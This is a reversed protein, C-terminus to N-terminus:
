SDGSRHWKRGLAGEQDRVVYLCITIIVMKGQLSLYQLTPGIRELSVVVVRAIDKSIRSEAVYMDLFIM